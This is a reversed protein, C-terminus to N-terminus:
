IYINEFEIRKEVAEEFTNVYERYVNGYYMIQAVRKLRDKAFYVWKVWSKNNIKNWTNKINERNSIHRLNYKRNDLRDRSIHDTVKEWQPKGIIERHLLITKKNKGARKAYWKNSLWRFYKDLYSFKKDVISYWDKADVWLPIKAIDWQIIAPRIKHWINEWSWKRYKLYRQYHKSCYWTSHNNLWCWEVSCTKIM